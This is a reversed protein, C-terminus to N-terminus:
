KNMKKLIILFLFHEERIHPIYGWIHQAQNVNILPTFIYECQKYTDFFMCFGVTKPGKLRAAVYKLM